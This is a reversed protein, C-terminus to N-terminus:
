VMLDAFLTALSLDDKDRPILDAFVDALCLDDGDIDAPLYRRRGPGRPHRKDSYDIFSGDLAIIPWLPGLCRKPPATAHYAPMAQM